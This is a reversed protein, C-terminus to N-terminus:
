TMSRPVAHKYLKEVEMETLVVPIKIEFNELVQPHVEGIIGVEDTGCRIIATRGPHFGPAVSAEFQGDKIGLQQFLDEVLGKLYYFDLELPATKWNTSTRGSVVAGLKLVESPLKDQGPIFVSGLEFFALNENRRALNRSINMLLGPMLLTRMIGQEESLPNAIALAKRRQDDDPLMIYDLLKKNIFSYNIVERMSSAMTNRIRQQFKQYPTLGGSSAGSPMQSPILNYGHLRAVEEILDEEIQLDPRYTPVVVELLGKSKSQKVTFSLRQLYAIVQETTLDTGLLENVRQPRLKITLPSFPKPYVDCVGAVVQGGALEQILQAARNIAFVAGNIDVGKEFRMSSDSRLALKHSTRRTNVPDFNASELLVTTTNDNIETNQGGMIGALAVPKKGDTIVLMSDELIREVGDLTTFKEGSNARRVVIRKDEALLRYDFAHLPQNTELMVYNTVDVVNNIPRIGSHMLADQMWAPSPGIKVNKVVRAAYRRCLDPDDIEVDVYSSIHEPSEEIKIEPINVQAGTLAAVERALNIMGLCDGRNPTLDLDLVKDGDVDDIGEIAIGAMTLAEALEEASWKYDVYKKLWNTSVGM